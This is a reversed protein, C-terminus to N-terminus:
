CCDGKLPSRGTTNAGLFIGTSNGKGVCSGYLPYTSSNDNLYEILRNKYMVAKDWMEQKILEYEKKDLSQTTDSFGRTLGKSNMRTWVFPLAEYISYWLSCPVIYENVLTYSAGSLTDGSVMALLSDDLNEGLVPRLHFTEAMKIFPEIIEPSINKSVPTYDRVDDVTAYTVDNM